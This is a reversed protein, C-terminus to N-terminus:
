LRDGNLACELRQEVLPRGWTTSEHERVLQFGAREYLARAADLGSFTGLYVKSFGKARCFAMAADILGRGAGQGRAADGLIFWRLLAAPPDISGDITIGGVYAGHDDARWSRNRPDDRRALFDGIEYAIKAEFFRPPFDWRTAYYDVQLAILRGADGPETERITIAL